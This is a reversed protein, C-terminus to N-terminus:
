MIAIYQPTYFTDIISKHTDIVPWFRQANKPKIKLEFNDVHLYIVFTYECTSM